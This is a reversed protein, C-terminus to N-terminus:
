ANHMARPNSGDHYQVDETVIREGFDTKFCDVGIDLLDELYAQWWRKAEPNTFDVTACGAQWIDSQFTRGDLRRVFYGKEDGEAFLRSAQGVWPNIWVCVKIGRQHLRELFGRPDPFYKPDFEFDCWHHARMWFCDFHFVSVPIDTDRMRDIYGTVTQEDYSTLFSTSLWLGYSWDPPLPPRGTFATYRSLVDKPSAGIFVYIKIKEGPVSMSVKTMRDSQVEFSVHDLQDVLVGYNKSSLYFPISKYAVDAVRLILCVQMRAQAAMTM